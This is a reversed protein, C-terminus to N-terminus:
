RGKGNAYEDFFKRDAELLPRNTDTPLCYRDDIRHTERRPTSDYGGCWIAHLQKPLEKSRARKTIFYKVTELEDLSGSEFGRSDHFIFQPNSKFILQNEIDHIGRQAASLSPSNPYSLSGFRQHSRCSLPILSCNITTLRFSCVAEIRLRHIINGQQWISQFDCSGRNFQVSKEPPDDKWCKGEWHRSHSFTQM